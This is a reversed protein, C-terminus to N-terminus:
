TLVTSYFMQFVPITLLLTLIFYVHFIFYKTILLTNIDCLLQNFLTKVRWMREVNLTWLICYEKIRPDCISRWCQWTFDHLLHTNCKGPWAQVFEIFYVCFIMFINYLSLPLMPLVLRALFPCFFTDWSTRCMVRSVHCMVCSVHFMVRRLTM